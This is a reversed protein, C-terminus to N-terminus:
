LSICDYMSGVTRDWCGWVCHFRLPPLLFFFSFIGRNIRRNKPTESRNKAENQKNGKMKADSKKPFAIKRNMKTERKNETRKRKPNKSNRKSTFCAFDHKKESGLSVFNESWNWNESGFRFRPRVRTAFNLELVWKYFFDKFKKLWKTRM